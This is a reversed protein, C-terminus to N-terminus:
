NSTDSKTWLQAYREVWYNPTGNYFDRIREEILEPSWVGGDDMGKCNALPVNHHVVGNIYTNCSDANYRGLCYKSEQLKGELPLLGIIPWRGHKVGGENVISKFIIPCRIVAELDTADYDFRRDYFALDGYNLVRAYIHYKKDFAVKVISGPIEKQRKKMPVYNNLIRGLM